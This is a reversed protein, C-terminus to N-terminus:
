VDGRFSEMTFGHQCPKQIFVSIATFNEQLILAKFFWRRRQEVGGGGGWFNMKYVSYYCQSLYVSEKTNCVGTCYEGQQTM